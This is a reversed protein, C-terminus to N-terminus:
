GLDDIHIEFIFMKQSNDWVPVKVRPKGYSPLINDFVNKSIVNNINAM